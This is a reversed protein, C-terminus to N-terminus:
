FKFPLVSNSSSALNRTLSHGPALPSDTDLPSPPVPIDSASLPPPSLGGPVASLFPSSAASAPGPTAGALSGASRPGAPDRSSAKKRRHRAGQIQAFLVSALLFVCKIIVDPTSHPSHLSVFRVRDTANAIQVMLRSAAYFRLFHLFINLTFLRVAFLMLHQGCM